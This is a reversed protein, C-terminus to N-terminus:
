RQDKGFAIDPRTDHSPAGLGSGTEAWERLILGSIPNREELAGIFRASDFLPCVRGPTARWARQVHAALEDWMETLRPNGIAACLAAMAGNPGFLDDSSVVSLLRTRVADIQPETFDILSFQLGRHLLEGLLSLSEDARRLDIPAVHTGKQPSIIVLHHRALRGMAERVPTRSVNAWAEIEADVLAEGPALDGDIIATRLQAFVVDRLLVRMQRTAGSPVPM